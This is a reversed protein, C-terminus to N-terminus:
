EDLHLSMAPVMLSPAKLHYILRGRPESDPDLILSFDLFACLIRLLISLALKHTDVVYSVDYVFAM